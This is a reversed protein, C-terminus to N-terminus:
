RCLYVSTRRGVRILASESKFGKAQGIHCWSTVLVEWSILLCAVSKPQTNTATGLPYDRLCRFNIGASDICWSSYINFKMHPVMYADGITEVKYVDYQELINDMFTYLGNLLDVVDMPSGKASLITFEVVDSFYITVSDFSKPEM